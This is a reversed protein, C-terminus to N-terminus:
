TLRLCKKRACCCGEITDLWIKKLRSRKKGEMNIKVTVRVSKTEERRM